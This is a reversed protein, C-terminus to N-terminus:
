YALQAEAVVRTGALLALQNMRHSKPLYLMAVDGYPEATGLMTKQGDHMWAVSLATSAGRVLVVYWSGDAPYMVHAIMGGHATFAVTRVPTSALRQIVDARSSMAVHMARNEQWLYASPLLGIILAAAIAPWAAPNIRATRVFPSPLRPSPATLLSVPPEHQPGAAIVTAVDDEAQALLQECGTCSTVHRDVTAREREDLTGLAYLAALEGIHERSNM